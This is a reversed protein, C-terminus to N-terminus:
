EKNGGCRALQDNFRKKMEEYLDLDCQNYLRLTAMLDDRLDENGYSRSIPNMNEFYVNSQVDIWPFFTQIVRLTDPWYELMGIVSEEMHQFAALQSAISIADMEISDHISRGTTLKSNGALARCMANEMGEDRIIGQSNTSRIKMLDHFEQVSLENLPRRYGVCSEHEFCREYYYSKIREVPDRAIVLTSSKAVRSTTSPLESWVNYDFHGAVVSVNKLDRKGQIDRLYFTDYSVNDLGPVIFNLGHKNAADAIYKRM